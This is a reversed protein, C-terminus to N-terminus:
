LSFLYSIHAMDPFLTEILPEWPLCTGSIHFSSGWELQLPWDFGTSGMLFISKEESNLDKWFAINYILHTSVM